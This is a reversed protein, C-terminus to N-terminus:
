SEESERPEEEADPEGTFGDLSIKEGDEVEAGEETEPESSEEVYVETEIFDEPVPVVKPLTDHQKPAEGNVKVCRPYLAGADESVIIKLLEVHFAWENVYDYVYYIKQHPDAIFDCLRSKKMMPIKKEGDSMDALTIEKGKKWNDDSMYFSALEKSDFGVSSLIASHLDEFTQTSKIELDRSVDEHDEFTVRFKYVAM